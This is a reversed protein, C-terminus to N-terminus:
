GMELSLLWGEASWADVKEPSFWLEEVHLGEAAFQLRFHEAALVAFFVVM